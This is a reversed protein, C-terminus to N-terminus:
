RPVASQRIEDRTPPHVRNRVQRSSVSAVDVLAGIRNLAREVAGVAESRSVAAGPTVGALEVVLELRVLEFVQGVPIPRDDRRAHVSCFFLDGRLGSGPRVHTAIESCFHL